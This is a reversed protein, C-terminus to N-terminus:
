FDVSVMRELFREILDAAVSYGDPNWHSDIAYYLFKGRSDYQKAADIFDKTMDYFVVDPGLSRKLEDFPYFPDIGNMFDAGYKYHYTQSKEPLMLLVFKAGNKKAELALEKIYKSLYSVVIKKSEDNGARMLQTFYVLCVNKDQPVPCNDYVGGPLSKIVANVYDEDKFQDAKETKIEKCLSDRVHQYKSTTYGGFIKILSYISYLRVKASSLYELEPVNFHPAYSKQLFDEPDINKPLREMVDGLTCGATTELFDSPITAQIVVNHPIKKGIKKYRDLQYKVSTGADGLNIIEIKNNRNSIISTWRARNPDKSGVGRTFSDGLAFAVYKKKKPPDGWIGIQGDSVSSTRFKDTFEEYPFIFNNESLPTIIKNSKDWTIKRVNEKFAIYDALRVQTAVEDKKFLLFCISEFISFLVMFIISSLLLKKRFSM